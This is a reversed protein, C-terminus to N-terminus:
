EQGEKKKKKKWKNNKKMKEKGSNQKWYTQLDRSILNQYNKLKKEEEDQEGRKIEEREKKKEISM